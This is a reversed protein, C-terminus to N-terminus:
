NRIADDLAKLHANSEGLNSMPPVDNLPRETSSSVLVGVVKPDTPHFTPLPRRRGARQQTRFTRAGRNASLGGETQRRAGERGRVCPADHASPGVGESFSEPGTGSCAASRPPQQQGYRSFQVTSALMWYIKTTLNNLACPPHRPVLLRHLVNYGAFLRSSSAFSSHDSSTRIPFGPQLLTWDGEGSCM